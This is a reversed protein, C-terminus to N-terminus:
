INNIDHIEPVSVAGYSIPFRESGWVTLLKTDISANMLQTKFDDIFFFCQLNLVHHLPSLDFM